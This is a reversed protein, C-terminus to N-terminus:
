GKKKRLKGKGYPVFPKKKKDNEDNKDMWPPKHSKVKPKPMPKKKLKGHMAM